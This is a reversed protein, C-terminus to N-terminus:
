QGLGKDVELTTADLFLLGLAILLQGSYYLIWVAHQMWARHSSTPSTLFRDAALISDSASFLLSGVIVQSSDVTIATITMAFIALSYLIVPPRLEANIQPMLSTIMALVLLALAGSIVSRWGELLIQFRAVINTNIRFFLGIYFIHAVLFSALGYLFSTEDDWALFADGISGLALAGVLLSPGGHIAAMASLLATSATKVIMRGRSPTSRVMTLYLIGAGISVALVVSSAASLEQSSSM